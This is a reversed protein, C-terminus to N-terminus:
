AEFGTFRSLGTPSGLGPPKSAEQYRAAPRRPEVPIFETMSLVRQGMERLVPHPRRSRRRMNSSVAAVQGPCRRFSARRGGCVETGTGIQAAPAGLNSIAPWTQHAIRDQGPNRFLLSFPIDEPMGAGRFSIPGAAPSGRLGDSPLLCAAVRGPLPVSRSKQNPQPGENGTSATPRPMLAGSFNVEEHTFSIPRDLVMEITTGRALIADPGRSLLVGM